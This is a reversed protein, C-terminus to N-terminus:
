GPRAAELMEEWRDLRTTECDMIDFFQGCDAVLEAYLNRPRWEAVFLDFPDDRLSLQHRADTTNISGARSIPM